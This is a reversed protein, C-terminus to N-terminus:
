QQLTNICPQWSESVLSRTRSSKKHWRLTHSQTNLIWLQLGESICRASVFNLPLLGIMLSAALPLFDPMFWIDLFLCVNGFGAERARMCYKRLLSEELLYLQSVILSSVLWLLTGSQFHQSPPPTTVVPLNHKTIVFKPILTCKSLGM